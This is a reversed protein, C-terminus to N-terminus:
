DGTGAQLIQAASLSSDPPLLSSVIASEETFTEEEYLGEVLRLVTIKEQVSDVIWYESIGRAQYQSRKYRYDRNENEKGPSVVEVVLQPSPMEPM